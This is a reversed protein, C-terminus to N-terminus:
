AVEIESMPRLTEAGAEPLVAGELRHDRFSLSHRIFERFLPHAQDPKSSFEPHFQVALFWPHDEIEVIEVLEGQPYVGTIKMGAKEFLDQFKNNFEYRHRHRESIKEARYAKGANGGKKLVCPYAGLRMTGGLQTVNQQEELLSIVPYSTKKNFETSNAGKMGLINRAFEIVACQM